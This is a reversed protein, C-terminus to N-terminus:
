NEANNADTAHQSVLSEMSALSKQLDRWAEQSVQSIAAEPLKAAEELLGTILALYSQTAMEYTTEEGRVKFIRLRLRHDDEGTSQSILREVTFRLWDDPWDDLRFLENLWPGFQRAWSKLRIHQHLPSWRM